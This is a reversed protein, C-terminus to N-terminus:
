YFYVRQPEAKWSYWIDAEKFKEFTSCCQSFCPERHRPCIYVSCVFPRVATMVSIERNVHEITAPEFLINNWFGITAAEFPLICSFDINSIDNCDQALKTDM